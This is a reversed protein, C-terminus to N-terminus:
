FVKKPKGKDFCITELNHHLLHHLFLSALSALDRRPHASKCCYPICIKYSTIIGTLAYNM